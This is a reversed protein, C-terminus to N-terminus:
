GASLWCILLRIVIVVYLVKGQEALEDAALRLQPEHEDPRPNAAPKLDQTAASM